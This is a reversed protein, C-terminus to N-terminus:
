CGFQRLPPRPPPDNRRRYGIWTGVDPAEDPWLGASPLVTPQRESGPPLTPARDFGARTWGGSPTRLQFVAHVDRADYWARHSLPTRDASSYGMKVRQRSYVVIANKDHKNESETAAHGARGERRLHDGDRPQWHAQGQPAAEPTPRWRV